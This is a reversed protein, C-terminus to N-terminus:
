RSSPRLGSATADITPRQNPDKRTRKSGERFSAPEDFSEAKKAQVYERESQFVRMLPYFYKSLKGFQWQLRNNIEGYQPPAKIANVPVGISGAMHITTNTVSDVRDLAAIFHWTDDFNKCPPVIYGDTGEYNLNFVTGEGRFIDSDLTGQRGKWSAGIWPKEYHSLWGKWNEVREEDMKIWNQIFDQPEKIFLKVANGAPMFAEYPGRPEGLPRADKDTPLRGSIDSKWRSEFYDGFTRQFAPILRSDCEIKLTPNLKILREYANSFFIEDGIGQEALVYLDCPTGDWRPYQWDVNCLEWIPQSRTEWGWWHNIRGLCLNAACIRWAWEPGLGLEKLKGKKAAKRIKEKLKKRQYPKFDNEDLVYELAEVIDKTALRM